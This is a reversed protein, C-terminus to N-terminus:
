GALWDFPQPASSSADPNALIEAYATLCPRTPALLVLSLCVGGRLLAPTNTNTASICDSELYMTELLLDRQLQSEDSCNVLELRCGASVCLQLGEWRACPSDHMKMFRGFLMNFCVLKIRCLRFAAM